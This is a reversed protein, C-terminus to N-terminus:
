KLYFPWLGFLLSFFFTEVTDRLISRKITLSRIAAIVVGIVVGPGCLLYMLATSSTDQYIKMDYVLTSLILVYCIAGVGLISPRINFACIAVISSITFVISFSIADPPNFTLFHAAVLTSFSALLFVLEYIYFSSIPKKFLLM